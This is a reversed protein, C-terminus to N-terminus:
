RARSRSRDAPDGPRVPDATRRGGVRRRGPTLHRRMAGLRSRVMWGVAEVHWRLRSLRSRYPLLAAELAQVLDADAREGQLRPQEQLWRLFAERSRNAAVPHYIGRRIARATSSGDHQRYLASEADSLVLHQTLYLKALLVQDEYMGPFRRDFGGHKVVIDRRVLLSCIPTAYGGDRLVATLMHPPAVITGSPWPLPSWVDPGAGAHWSRWDLARGCVVTASPCTLLAEVQGTLHGPQWVDDADLFALLEGRAAAVGLNRTASTGCHAHGDHELYRVREPELAAWRRALATSADDSGDDCLLLELPAYTQALVSRIAEDMFTPPANWFIMEVSVLPRVSGDTM